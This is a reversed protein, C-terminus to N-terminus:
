LAYVNQLKPNLRDLVVFKKTAEKVYLQRDQLNGAPFLNESLKNSCPLLPVRIFCAM